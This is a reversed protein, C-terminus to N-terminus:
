LEESRAHGEGVHGLNPLLNIFQDYVGANKDKLQSLTINIQGNEALLVFPEFGVAGKNLEDDAPLEYDGFLHDFHFTMEIDATNGQEVVGKRIDGIFDGAQYRYEKDIGIVFQIEKEDKKATGKLLINQGKLEGDEANVLEWSLANYHGVPAKTKGVIIPDANEDGKAMDVTFSGDLAVSQESEIKETTTPDYAPDTQYAKINALNIFANDFNITWGDKSVFGSRIFDEGNADFELSGTEKQQCATLGISLISIILLKRVSIVM